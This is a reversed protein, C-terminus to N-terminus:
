IPVAELALLYLWHGFDNPHNINNGLLSPLDKRELVRSWVGYVDAYPAQLRDAARRTAEAYAEMRHSGHMWEPNPPFASLLVVEAGTEEIIRTAITVLNEEFQAPEVGRVNHDNMGFGILVLDPDRSLVKDELRELGNVTSDGGTAGNELEIEAKPFRAALHAAYRDPFRLAAATAEGGATISDGYAVIRFPGGARLKEASKPLLAPGSQRDALPRAARSEYDVFVFFPGNGYGPFESHNFDKQGYLVNQAFDPIRSDPTRAVAGHAYDVTYDRGEEYVVAASDASYASRVVVSGPVVDAFVLAGPAEGALVLSDGTIRGPAKPSLTACGMGMCVAFALSAVTAAFRIMM